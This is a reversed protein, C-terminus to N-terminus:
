AARARRGRGRALRPLEDTFHLGATPAAASGPPRAYVTQYREPPSSRDHIYPPLPMEGAAAMVEHPDREFRVARTGDGLREGVEVRDGGSADAVRRGCADRLVSSRRGDTADDLPRLM